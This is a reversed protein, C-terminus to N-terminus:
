GAAMLRLIRARAPPVATIDLATFLHFTDLDRDIVAHDSVWAGIQLYARLLPPMQRLALGMQVEGEATGTAPVPLMVHEPARCQPALTRPALHHQGLWGLAASAAGVDTGAFSTCGALMGAGTEDVLRTLAGLALRPVDPTSQDQRTCFRGFELVPRTWHRMRSLDYFRAAYSDRGLATGNVFLRVRFTALVLGDRSLDEIVVHRCHLDHGDADDMRGGRFVTRRLALAAQMGTGPGVERALLCGRHLDDVRLGKGTM